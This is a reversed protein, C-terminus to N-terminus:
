FPEPKKDPTCLEVAHTIARALRNALEEDDVLVEVGGRPSKYMEIQFIPPRVTWITKGESLDNLAQEHSGVTIKKVDRLNLNHDDNVPKFGETAMRVHYSITCRQPDAVVNTVEITDNLVVERGDDVERSRTTHRLVGIGNMKDQIFKMTVELSPGDDAPKPPPPVPQPESSGHAAPKPAPPLPVRQQESWGSSVFCILCFALIIRRGLM